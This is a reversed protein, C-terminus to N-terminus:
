FWADPLTLMSMCLWVTMCLWVACAQFAAVLNEAPISQWDVADMVVAPLSTDGALKAVSEVDARSGVRLMMAALRQMFSLLTLGRMNTVFSTHMVTMSQVFRNPHCISGQLM